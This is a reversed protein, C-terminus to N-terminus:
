RRYVGGAPLHREATRAGTTFSRRCHRRVRTSAAELLVLALEPDADPYRVLVDDVTALAVV